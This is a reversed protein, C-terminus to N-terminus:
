KQHSHLAARGQQTWDKSDVPKFSVVEVNKGLAEAAAVALIAALKDDSMGPHITTQAAPAAPAAAPASVGGKVPAAFGKGSELASAIRHFASGMYFIAIVGLFALVLLGFQALGMQAIADGTTVVKNVIVETTEVVATQPVVAAAVQALTDPSSM